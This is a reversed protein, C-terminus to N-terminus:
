GSEKDKRVEVDKSIKKWGSATETNEEEPTVKGGAERDGGADGGQTHDLESSHAFTETEEKKIAHPEIPDDIKRWAPRDKPIPTDKRRVEKVDGEQLVEATNGEESVVKITDDEEKDDATAVPGIDGETADDEESVWIADGESSIKGIEEPATNEIEPVLAESGSDKVDVEMAEEEM